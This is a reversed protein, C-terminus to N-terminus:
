KVTMSRSPLTEETIWLVELLKPDFMVTKPLLNVRCSRLPRKESSGVHGLASAARLHREM